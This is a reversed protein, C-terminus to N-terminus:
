SVTVSCTDTFSGDTTTVTITATGAAEATVVGDVVSAITSDDSSWTVTKDTANAPAVTAVLTETDGVSMTLTDQDLTVGTVAVTSVTVECEDTFSGDTTTVTITASGASVGTVVGNSDVSAVSSGSSSWTVAKNTANAPTVTAVLTETAGVNIAATNKNLSVGTM